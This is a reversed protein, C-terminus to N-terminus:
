KKEKFEIVPDFTEIVALCDVDVSWIEHAGPSDKVNSIIRVGERLYWDVAWRYIIQRAKDESCIAQVKKGTKLIFRIGTLKVVENM